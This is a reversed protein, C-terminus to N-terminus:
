QLAMTPTTPSLCPQSTFVKLLTKGQSSGPGVPVSAMQTSQSKNTPPHAAAQEEQPSTTNVIHPTGRLTWIHTLHDQSFKKDVRAKPKTKLRKFVGNLFNLNHAKYFQKHACFLTVDSSYDCFVSYM